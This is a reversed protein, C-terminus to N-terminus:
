CRRMAGVLLDGIPRKSRKPLVGRIIGAERSPRYISLGAGLLAPRKFQETSRLKTRFATPEATAGPKSQLSWPV